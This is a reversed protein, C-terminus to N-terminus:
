DSRRYSRRRLCGLAVLGAAVLIASLPEPTQFDVTVQFADTVFLDPAVNGVGPAQFLSATPWQVPPNGVYAITLDDFDLRHNGADIPTTFTSGPLAPVLVIPLQPKGDVSLPSTYGLSKGDAIVEYINGQLYTNGPFVPGVPACGNIDCAAPGLDQVTITLMGAPLFGLDIFSAAWLNPATFTGMGGGPFFRVVGRAGPPIAVNSNAFETTDSITATRAVAGVLLLLTATVPIRPLNRVSGELPRGEM